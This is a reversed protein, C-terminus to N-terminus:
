RKYKCWINVALTLMYFTTISLNWFHVFKTNFTCIINATVESSVYSNSSENQLMTRAFNVVATLCARHNASCALKMLNVEFDTWLTPDTHIVEPAM